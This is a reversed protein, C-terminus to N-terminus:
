KNLMFAHVCMFNENKILTGRYAHTEPKWFSAYKWLFRLKLIYLSTEFVVAGYATSYNVEVM